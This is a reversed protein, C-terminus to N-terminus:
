WLLVLDGDIGAVCDDVGFPQDASVEGVGGDLGTYLVPGKFNDIDASLRLKLYLVLVLLLDKGGLLHATHHM